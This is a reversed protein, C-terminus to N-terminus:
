HQQIIDYLMLFRMPMLESRTNLFSQANTRKSQPMIANLIKIRIKKELKKSSIIQFCCCCLQRGYFPRWVRAVYKHWQVSLAKANYM